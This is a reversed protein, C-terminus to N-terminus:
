ILPDVFVPLREYPLYQDILNQEVAFQVFSDHAKCPLEIVVNASFAVGTESLCKVLM